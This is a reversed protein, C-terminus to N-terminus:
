APREGRDGALQEYWRVCARAVRDYGQEDAARAAARVLTQRAGRDHLLSRITVALAEPDGVAHCRPTGYLDALERFQPLDSAVIPRRAALATALAGSATVTRYPMLVLDAAALVAGVREDDLYGTVQMRDAVGCRRALEQLHEVVPADAASQAGGGIALFVEEPLEQLARVAVDYGKHEKVFGFTALLPRSGIGIRARFAEPSGGPPRPPVPHTLTRLVRARPDMGLLAREHEGSMVHFGFAPHDLWRLWRPDELPLCHLTVLTPRQLASFFRDVHAAPDDGAIFFAHEYQVHVIDADIRPLEYAVREIPLLELDVHRDLESALARTYDGIGCDRREPGIMAVRMM